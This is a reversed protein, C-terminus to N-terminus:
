TGDAVGLPLERVKSPDIKCPSRLLLVILIGSFLSNRPGWRRGTSHSKPRFHHANQLTAYPESVQCSVRHLLVYSNWVCLLIHPYKIINDFPELVKSTVESPNPSINSPEKASMDPSFIGSTDIPPNLFTTM